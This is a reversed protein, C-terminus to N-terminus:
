LPFLIFVFAPQYIAGSIWSAWAAVVTQALAAAVHAAIIPTLRYTRRYLWVTGLAVPVLLLLEWGVAAGFATRAVTSLLYVGWVPFRGAETLTVVVGLLVLETAIAVAIQAPGITWLTRLHHGAADTPVDLTLMGPLFTAAYPIMFLTLAGGFVLLGQYQFDLRALLRPQQTWTPALGLDRVGIGLRRTMWWTVAMALVLTLAAVGAWHWAGAPGTEPLLASLALPPVFVIAMAVAILTSATVTSIPAPRQRPRSM